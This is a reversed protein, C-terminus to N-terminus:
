VQVPPLLDAVRVQSNPRALLSLSESEDYIIVEGYGEGFPQRHVLFRRGIFDVVWYEEIGARAYVAAKENLDFHLTADSIEAVLLLDEPGPHQKVYATVPERMVSVDPEPKNDLLRIPGQTKVFLRGFVQELWVALLILAICHPPNASMKKYIDGEILEYREPLLGAKEMEECQAVTWRIRQPLLESAVNEQPATLTQSM